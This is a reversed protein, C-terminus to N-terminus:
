PTVEFVVGANHRGGLATGYLNGFRDRVLLSRPAQGDAKEQFGHLVTETNNPNLKFVTGCENAPCGGGSLTTGYLNGDPDRVLGAEPYGGDELDFSFLETMAGGKRSIKFVTGFINAGSPHFETTGYLNGAGDAILDAYPYGNDPARGTFHHLVTESGDVALKFVTGSNHAGGQTTTGYLAGSRARLLGASPNAGDPGAFAHLVTETGAAAIAFVTGCGSPNQNACGGGAGGALTTGYLTGAADRVLRSQPYTGDTGGEFMHLLTFTGDPALRYAIGCPGATCARDGGLMATGYINGDGDLLVPNPMAGDDGKFAHLVTEHGSRDLKFVTGCGSSCNASGGGFWTAGYLNGSADRALGGNPQEGDAGGKFAYLVRYTRAEASPCALMAVALIAAIRLIRM